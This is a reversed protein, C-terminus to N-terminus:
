RLTKLNLSSQYVIGVLGELPREFSELEPSVLAALLGISVVQTERAPASDNM